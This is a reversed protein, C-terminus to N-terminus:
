FKNPTRFEASRDPFPTFKQGSAPANWMHLAPGAPSNVAWGVGSISRAIADPYAQTINLISTTVIRANLAKTRQFEV